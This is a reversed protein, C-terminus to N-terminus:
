ARIQWLSTILPYHKYMLVSVYPLVHMQIRGVPAGAEARAGSHGMRMDCTGCGQGLGRRTGKESFTHELGVGWSGRQSMKVLDLWVSRKTSRFM